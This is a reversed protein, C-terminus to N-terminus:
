PTVAHGGGHDEVIKGVFGGGAEFGAIEIPLLDEGAADAPEVGAADEGGERFGGGLDDDFGHLGSFGGAGHHGKVEIVALFEPADGAAGGAGDLNEVADDFVDVYQDAVFFVQLLAEADGPGFDGGFGLEIGGGEEPHDIGGGGLMRFDLDDGGGETLDVGGVAVTPAGDGPNAALGVGRGDSIEVNEIADAAAIAEGGTEEVTQEGAFGRLFGDFEAPSVPGQEGGEGAVGSHCGEFLDAGKGFAAARADLPLFGMRMGAFFKKSRVPRTTATMPPVDPIPRSSAMPRAAAPALTTGVPRRRGLTSSTHSATSCAPAFVRRRAQSTPERSDMSAKRSATRALNPWTSTRSLAAPWIKRLGVRSTVSGSHFRRKSTLTVPM